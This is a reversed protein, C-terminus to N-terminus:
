AQEAGAEGGGWIRADPLQSIMEFVSQRSNVDLHTCRMSLRGAKRLACLRGLQPRPPSTIPLAFATKM